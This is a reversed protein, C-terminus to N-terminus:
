SLSVMATCAPLGTSKTSSFASTIGWLKTMARGPVICAIPSSASFSACFGAKARCFKTGLLESTSADLVSM